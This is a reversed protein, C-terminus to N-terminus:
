RTKSPSYASLCGTSEMLNQARICLSSRLPRGGTGTHLTADFVDCRGNKCRPCLGREEDQCGTGDDSTFIQFAIMTKM